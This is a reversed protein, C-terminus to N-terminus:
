RPAASGAPWSPHRTHSDRVDVGMQVCGVGETRELADCLRQVQGGSFTDFHYSDVIEVRHVTILFPTFLAATAAEEGKEVDFEDGEVGLVLGCSQPDVVGVVGAASVDAALAQSERDDQLSFLSALEGGDLCFGIGLHFPHAGLEVRVQIGHSRPEADREVFDPVPKGATGDTFAVECGGDAEGHIGFAPGLGALSGQILFEEGASGQLRIGGVPGGDLVLDAAPQELRAARSEDRPGSPM